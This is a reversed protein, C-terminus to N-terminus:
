KNGLEAHVREGRSLDRMDSFKNNRAKREPLNVPFSTHAKSSNGFYAGLM